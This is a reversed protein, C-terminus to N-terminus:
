RATTRYGGFRAVPSWEPLVPPLEPALEAYPEAGYVVEGAVITLVSEISRISEEPVSFYDDSLVALDAFRGPMLAGKRDEEGSLWAGGTTYLRLAETRTLRNEPPYLVTGGVTRGSVMWYLSLWPNHSSVRTADTGAALPIGSELLARLPPASAAAAEGYREVFLEGAFAMRNQIAIGGGLRQIAQIQEPRITEAHDIAWRLGAFPHKADVREFVELLRAISEGYTAHIRFPWRKEVLLSAVAELRRDMARELVPRPAMFNEFDGAAWTLFEIREPDNEVAQQALSYAQDLKGSQAALQSRIFLVDGGSATDRSKLIHELTADAQVPDAAGRRRRGPLSQVMDTEKDGALRLHVLPVPEQLRLADIDPRRRPRM